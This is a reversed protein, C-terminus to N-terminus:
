GCSNNEFTEMGPVRRGEVLRNIEQLLQQGWADTKSLIKEAHQTLRKREQFTLEQSTLIFLPIHQLKENARIRSALEFGDMGPMMLDLLIVNITRQSLIALADEGSSAAIVDYSSSQLISQTLELAAPDDDVLLIVPRLSTPIPVHKCLAEKLASQSVPKLLYEAAGLAFGVRKQDVVSVIIVPISAIEPRRKLLELTTFGNGAPFLIDLTIAAINPQNAKHIAEQESHATEVRYGASRVIQSLLETAVPDDDIILIVPSSSQTPEPGASVETHEILLSDAKALPLTFSFRSGRGLESEVKIQGGHQEVLKKTIALGLGTGNRVESDSDIIQKFEEFISEHQEPAIGVGTDHVKVLAYDGLREIDVSVEGSEPTFKVANSLLNYLIQKFRIRDVDLIIGPELRSSFHINKSLLLPEIDATVEQLLAGPSLPTRTLELKGAEIKSLDLLENILQLLHKGGNRIHGLWRKQKETLGSDEHLLSAFGLVANLPTRLEHSMAALFRSKMKNAHEIEQNRSELERSHAEMRVQTHKQETIDRLFAAFIYHSGLRIPSISVEVPFEQGDRHLASLELRRNFLASEGSSLFHAIGLRHRERMSEPLIMQDLERGLAEARTWGFTSEAERNWETIVGDENISIFADHAQEIVVATLQEADRLQKYVSAIFSGAALALGMILLALYSLGREHQWADSRVASVPVRIRVAWGTTSIPAQGDIFATRSTGLAQFLSGRLDSDKNVQPASRELPAMGGRKSFVNGLQDVLSIQTTSQTLRIENVISDVAEDAVLIGFRKGASDTLPVVIAFLWSKSFPAQFAASVHPQWDDASHKYVSSAPFDERGGDCIKPYCALLKGDPSFAELLTAKPELAPAQELMRAIEEISGSRWAKITAPQAGFSRLTDTDETLQKEIAEGVVTAAQKSRTTVGRMSQHIFMEHAALLFVVLPLAALLLSVTMIASRSNRLWEHFSVFPGKAIGDKM